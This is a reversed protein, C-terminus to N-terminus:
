FPTKLKSRRGSRTHYHDIKSPSKLLAHIQGRSLCRTQRSLKRRYFKPITNWSNSGPSAGKSHWTKKRNKDLEKYDGRTDGDVPDYQESQDVPYEFKLWRERERWAKVELRQLYENYHYDM